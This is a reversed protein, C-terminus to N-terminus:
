KENYYVEKYIFNEIEGWLEINDKFEGGKLRKQLQCINYIAGEHSRIRNILKCSIRLGYLVGNFYAKLKDSM